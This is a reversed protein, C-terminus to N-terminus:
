RNDRRKLYWASCSLWFLAQVMLIIGGTYYVQFGYDFGIMQRVLGAIWPVPEAGFGEYLATLQMELGWRAPLLDAAWRIASHMGQRFDPGLGGSLIFQPLVAVIAFLVSFRGSSPDIASLFLGLAVSAWAVSVM